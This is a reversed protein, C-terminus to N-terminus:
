TQLRLHKCAFITELFFTETEDKTLIVNHIKSTSEHVYKKFYHSMENKYPWFKKHINICGSFQTVVITVFIFHM